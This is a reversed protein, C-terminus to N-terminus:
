RSRKKHKWDGARFRNRGNLHWDHPNSTQMLDWLKKASKTYLRDRAVIKRHSDFIKRLNSGRAEQEILELDVDLNDADKVIRAEISKKSEYEKWIKEFEAVSTDKVMDQIALRENRKSYQRSLYHADGTRSEPLDHVLAMKLIKEHDGKKEYKSLILGLWMVRYIHETINAFEPTLVHTWARQLFRFAGIEYLFELDRKTSM